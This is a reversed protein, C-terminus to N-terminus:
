AILLQIVFFIFLILLFFISSNEKSAFSPTKLLIGGLKNPKKM